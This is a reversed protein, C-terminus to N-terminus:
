GLIIIGSEVIKPIGCISQKYWEGGNNILQDTM